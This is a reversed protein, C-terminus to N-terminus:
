EKEYVEIEDLLFVFEGALFTKAEDTGFAYQPHKYVLGLDSISEMTTNANNAIQIDGGFIPGFSSHCCIAYEHFNPHFKIKIPKNDRNTLSFLFANQDSKYKGPKPCSEWDVTTYGGFIFESEKAKFITLTNSHGDCRSHFDNTGFGDRTGRYLLSWKDSPPFECLKILESCQREGKIIEGQFSNIKSYQNLKISGFLSALEEQDFLTSNPRFENLIKFNNKVRNMETLKLQIDILSEEQKRQMQKITEILLNPDRFKEEIKNLDNRISKTEDFSSFQDEINRLYEAEFKKTQQIMELAMDDIRKKLKDRQENIQFKMKQFHDVVVSELKAKNEIIQGYIHFFQKVSVELEQKLGKEEENLYSQSEILKTLANSSKFHNNKIQFDQKCDNCKIKKQKVVAKESLHGRCISDNCPLDIPDKLIKSCYSCTWERKRKSM